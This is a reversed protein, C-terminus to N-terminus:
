AKARKEKFKEKLEERKVRSDEKRKEDM